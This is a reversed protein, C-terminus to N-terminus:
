TTLAAVAAVVVLTQQAMAGLCTRSCIGAQAAEEQAVPEGTKIQCILIVVAVAAVAGLLLLEQLRRPCGRAAQEVPALMQVIGVLPGRAAVVQPMRVKRDVGLMERVLPEQEV